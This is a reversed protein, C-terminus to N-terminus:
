APIKQTMKRNNRARIRQKKLSTPQPLDFSVYRIGSQEEKQKLDQFIAFLNYEFAAAHEERILHLENIIPDEWM